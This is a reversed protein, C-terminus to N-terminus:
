CTSKAADLFIHIGAMPTITSGVTRTYCGLTSTYNYTQGGAESWVSDNGSFSYSTVTQTNQLLAVSKKLPRAVEKSVSHSIRTYQTGSDDPRVCVLLRELM